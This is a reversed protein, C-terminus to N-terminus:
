EKSGEEDLVRNALGRTIYALRKRRDISQQVTALMVYQIRALDEHILFVKHLEDVTALGGHGISVFRRVVDDVETAAECYAVELLQAYHKEDDIDHLIPVTEM